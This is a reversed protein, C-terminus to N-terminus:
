MADYCDMRDEKRILDLVAQKSASDKLVIGGYCVNKRIKVNPPVKVGKVRKNANKGARRKKKSVGRDTRTPTTAAATTKTAGKKGPSSTKRREEEENNREVRKQM